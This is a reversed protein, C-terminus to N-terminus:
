KLDTQIYSGLDSKLSKIDREMAKRGSESCNKVESFGNLIHRSMVQILNFLITNIVYKPIAGGGYSIIKEECQNIQYLLREVYPSNSSEFSDTNWDSSKVLEVIPDMKM